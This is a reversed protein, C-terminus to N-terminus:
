SKLLKVLDRKEQNTLPSTEALVDLRNVESSMHSKKRKSEVEINASWRIAKRRLLRVRNQWRYIAKEERIPASWVEKVLREFDKHQLWWKEFRFRSKEAMQDLRSEWLIPAHDIPQRPLTKTSSLPYKMDFDTGCFVRDIHALIANDQNNSWTFCRGALKIEMLSHKHTWENFKDCWKLNVVGNSKDKSSKVLNFGGGGWNHYSNPCEGV